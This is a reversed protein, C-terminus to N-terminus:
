FKVSSSKSAVLNNRALGSGRRAAALTSSVKAQMNIRVALYKVIFDSHETSLVPVIVSTCDAHPDGTCNSSSAKTIYYM